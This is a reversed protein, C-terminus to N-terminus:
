FRTCRLGLKLPEERSERCSIGENGDGNQLPRWRHRMASAAQNLFLLWGSQKSRQACAYCTACHGCPIFFCSRQDDYCIICVKADYLGESPGTEDDDEVATMRHTLPVPRKDTWVTEESDCVALSKLVLLIIIVPFGLISNYSVVRAVFSLEVYQGDIDGFPQSRVNDATSVVVYHMNPFQLNLQYSGNLTSCMNKAKSVDYVMSKVSLNFTTMITKPSSNIVGVYYKDDEDITYEAQKGIVQENLFLAIFPFTVAPWCKTKDVKEQLFMSKNQLNWDYIHQHKTNTYVTDDFSFPCFSLHLHKGKVLVIEINSLATTQTAWRMCIKSGKNLWLTYGKWSYSGVTLYSSSSWNVEKNPKPKESFGYVLAGEGNEDRVEVQQVFVPSAKMLVSSSPGLEMHRDEYCAFRFIVFVNYDGQKM